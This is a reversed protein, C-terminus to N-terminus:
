QFIPPVEHFANIGSKERVVKGGLSRPQATTGEGRETRGSPQRDGISPRSNSSNGTPSPNDQQVALPNSRSPRETKRQTRASSKREGLSPRPPTSDETSLHRASHNGHDTRRTRVSPTREGMSPRAAPVGKETTHPHEPRQEEQLAEQYFATTELQSTVVSPKVNRTSGGQHIAMARRLDLTHCNNPGLQEVLSTAVDVEELCDRLCVLGAMELVAEHRFQAIDESQYFLAKSGKPSVKPIFYTEEEEASFTVRKAMTM